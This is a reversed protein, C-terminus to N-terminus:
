DEQSKRSRLEHIDSDEIRFGYDFRKEMYTQATEIVKEKLKNLEDRERSGARRSGRRSRSRSNQKLEELAADIRAVERRSVDVAYKWVRVLEDDAEVGAFFGCAIMNNEHKRVLGIGKVYDGHSRLEAGQADKLADRVTQIYGAAMAKGAALFTHRDRLPKGDFTFDDHRKLLATSARAFAVINEDSSRSCKRFAKSAAPGNGELVTAVANLLLLRDKEVGPLKRLHAPKLMPDLLGRAATPDDSELIAALERIESRASALVGSLGLGPPEMWDVHRVEVTAWEAKALDIEIPTRTDAIVAKVVSSEFEGTLRRDRTLNLVHRGRDDTEFRVIDRLPVKIVGARSKFTLTGVVEQLRLHCDDTDLILVRGSVPESGDSPHRFAVVRVDELKIEAADGGEMAFQISSDIESSRIRNGGELFLSASGGDSMIYAVDKAPAEIKGLSFEWHIVETVVKGPIRDGDDYFLIDKDMRRQFEPVDIRGHSDTLVDMFPSVDTGNDMKGLLFANRVMEATLQAPVLSSYKAGGTDERGEPAKMLTVTGVLYGDRDVMPGGSNGPRAVVDTYVMRIRGGPTRPAQLVNGSTISVLPHKDRNSRNRDGGPFGLAWVPMRDRLRSEPLLTLYDPWDLKDGSEDYVQLVAQDAAENQYVVVAEWTQEDETGSDTIVTWTLKGAKYHFSQKEEPSKMHTPDVVHNNTIALGTGNVFFGSGSGQLTDGKKNKTTFTFVMVAAKKVKAETEEKMSDAFSRPVAVSAVLAAVITAVWVRLRRSARHQAPTATEAQGVCGLGAIVAKM